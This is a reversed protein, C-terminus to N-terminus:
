FSIGIVASNNWLQTDINNAFVTQLRCRWGLVISRRGFNLEAGLLNDLGFNNGWWGCHVLGRRNGLYIEYYTEGYEPCFFAGVTPLAFQEFPTISLRGLRCPRSVSLTADIGIRALANAPNNSNRRLYIVGGECEAQAGVGLRFDAPLQFMREMGWSFNAQLLLMSANGAPNRSDSFDVGGKFEMDWRPDFPMKKRWSGNITFDPGHYVLPSLYSSYSHRGGIELTYRSRIPRNEEAGRAFIPLALGVLITFIFNKPNM